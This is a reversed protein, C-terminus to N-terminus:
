ALRASAIRTSRCTSMDRSDRTSDDGRGADAGLLFAFRNLDDQRQRPRLRAARQQHDDVETRRRGCQPDLLGLDEELGLGPDVEGVAYEARGAM